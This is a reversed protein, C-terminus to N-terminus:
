FPKSFYSKVQHKFNIKPFAKFDKKYCITM